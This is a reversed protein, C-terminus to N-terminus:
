GAPPAALGSLGSGVLRSLLDVLRDVFAGDVSLGLPPRSLHDYNRGFIFGQHLLWITAVVTDERSATEPLFRHVIRQALMLMPAGEAAILAQFVETRQMMEWNLLRMSQSFEDRKLLPLLQQRVFFRLAEGRDMAELRAGDLQSSAQFKQLAARLVERYLGDKSGFHYNIAAQNAKAKETIQRVSGGEFGKEAFVATAATLLAHRTLESPRTM